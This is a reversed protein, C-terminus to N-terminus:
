NAKAKAIIDPLKDEWYKIVSSSIHIEATDSAKGNDVAYGAFSAGLNENYIFVAPLPGLISPIRIIIGYYKESKRDDKKILKYVAASSSLSSDLRMNAGVTYQAAPYSDLVRQMEFALGNKWSNRSLLTFVVLIVTMAFIMGFFSAFSVINKKTAPDLNIRPM